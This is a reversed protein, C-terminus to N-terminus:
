FLAYVEAALNGMCWVCGIGSVARGIKLFMTANNELWQGVGASLGGMTASSIGGSLYGELVACAACLVAWPVNMRRSEEIEEVTKTDPSAAAFISDEAFHVYIAESDYFAQFAADDCYAIVTDQTKKVKQVACQLSSGPVVAGNEYASTTVVGGVKVAGSIMDTYLNSKAITATKVIEKEAEINACAMRDAGGDPTHIVVSKGIATNFWGDGELPLNVDNVVKARGGVGIPGHKGSMDGVM